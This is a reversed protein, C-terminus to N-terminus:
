GRSQRESASPDPLTTGVREGADGNGGSRAQGAALGHRLSRAVGNSDVNRETEADVAFVNVDRLITRTGTEPIDASKRLFVVLDVRDGPQVLGSVSSEMSVRVSVVRFGEPIDVSKSGDNSDMLKAQLIPEGAYLRTRPFRDALEELTTIAGDPVRDKPWEEPRVNQADLKTGINIDNMAVFIKTTEVAGTSNGSARELYQSVGM